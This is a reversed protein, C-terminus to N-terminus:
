KAMMLKPLFTSIDPFLIIFVLIITYAVLYKMSARSVEGIPAKCVGSAVYMAMGFPPTVQGIQM